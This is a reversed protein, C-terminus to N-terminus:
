CLKKQKSHSNNNRFASVKKFLAVKSGNLNVSRDNRILSARANGIANLLM